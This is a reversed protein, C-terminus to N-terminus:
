AEDDESSLEAQKIELDVQQSECSLTIRKRNVFQTFTESGSEDINIKAERLQLLSPHHCLRVIEDLLRREL